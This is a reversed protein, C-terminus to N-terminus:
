KSGQYRFRLLRSVRLTGKTSYTTSYPMPWDSRASLTSGIEIDSTRGPRSLCTRSGRSRNDSTVYPKIRIRVMVPDKLMALAPCASTRDMNIPASPHLAAQPITSATICRSPRTLSRPLFKAMTRVRRTVDSGSSARRRTESATGGPMAARTWGASHSSNSRRNFSNGSGGARARRAFSSQSPASAMNRSPNKAVRGTAIGNRNIRSARQPLAFM